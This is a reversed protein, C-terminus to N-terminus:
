NYRVRQSGMSVLSGQGEDDGPTQEFEHGNLQRRWGVMEDRRRRGYTKGLMLTKELSDTISDLMEDEIM